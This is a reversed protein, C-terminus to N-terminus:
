MIVGQEKLQIFLNGNAEVKISKLGVKEAAELDRDSDGILMSNSIDIDFRAIAKELLISKPKRCLCNSTDPHHPCFYYEKIEINNNVLIKDFFNHLVDVDSKKYIGKDIGSQNSIVILFYGKDFFYKLVDIVGGNLKFMTTSYVYYHEKNNNIVGDRDFFVAKNM